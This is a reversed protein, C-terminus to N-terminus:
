EFLTAEKAQLTKYVEHMNLDTIQVKVAVSELIGIERESKTTDTFGIYPTAIGAFTLLSDIVQVNKAQVSYRQNPILASTVDKGTGLSPLALPYIADDVPFWSQIGQINVRGYNDKILALELNEFQNTIDKVNTVM